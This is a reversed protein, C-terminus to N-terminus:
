ITASHHNLNLGVLDQTQVEVAEQYSPIEHAPMTRGVADVSSCGRARNPTKSGNEKCKEKVQSRAMQKAAETMDKIQSQTMREM